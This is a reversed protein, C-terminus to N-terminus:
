KIEYRLVARNIIMNNDPLWSLAKPIDREYLDSVSYEYDKNLKFNGLYYINEAEVKITQHPQIRKSLSSYSDSLIWRHFSYLGAPIRRIFLRSRINESPYINVNSTELRVGFHNDKSNSMVGTLASFMVDLSVDKNTPLSISIIIFGYEDKDQDIISFDFNTRDSNVTSCSTLFIFIVFFVITKINSSGLAFRLDM